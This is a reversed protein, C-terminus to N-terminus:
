SLPSLLERAHDSFEDPITLDYRSAALTQTSAFDRQGRTTRHAFFGFVAGWGAGILGGGFILGLWAPGPTFLGVHLDILLGVWAGTGAGAAAARANTLRGTVREVLRLDHGVINAYQVPFEADSLRDVARQAQVYTAYSGIVQRATEGDSQDFTDDWVTRTHLSPM